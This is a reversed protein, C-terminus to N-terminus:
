ASMASSTPLDKQEMPNLGDVHPLESVTLSLNPNRESQEDTM